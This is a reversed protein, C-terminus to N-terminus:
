RRQVNSGITAEQGGANRTAFGVKQLLRESTRFKDTVQFTMNEINQEMNELDKGFVSGVRQAHMHLLKQQLIQIDNLIQEVSDVDQVWSPQTNANGFSSMQIGEEASM